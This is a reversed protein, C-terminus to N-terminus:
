RGRRVEDTLKDIALALDYLHDHIAGLQAQVGPPCCPQKLAVAELQERTMRNITEESM